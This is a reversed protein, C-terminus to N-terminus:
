KLFNNVGETAPDWYAVSVVKGKELGLVTVKGTQEPFDAILAADDGLIIRHSYKKMKPLAFMRGIGPMGHINAVYVAQKESLHDKGLATLAGNAKKGTDMDHSVLLYRTAAADFRYEQEHQDKATFAKITAGEVYPEARLFGAGLVVSCLVVFSKKILSTKM